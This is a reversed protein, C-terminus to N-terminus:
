GRLTRGSAADRIRSPRGPTQLHGGLLLDVDAGLQARVQWAHLAAPRGGRNASTSVLAGGFQRCLSAAVPHATVRVAIAASDGRLRRPVHAAAPLLWTVPGPWDAAASASVGSAALYPQLAEAAEAILILGKRMPRRKVALLRDVADPNGPDCALGWVGETPHAVLGGAQLRAAAMRLQHPSITM